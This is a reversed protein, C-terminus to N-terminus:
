PPDNYLLPFSLSILSEHEAEMQLQDEWFLWEKTDRLLAENILSLNYGAYPNAIAIHWLKRQEAQCVLLSRQKFPTGLSCFPHKTWFNAMMQIHDHPWNARGMAKIMWLTAVCFDEWDIDHDNIIGKSEQTSSVPILSTSSDAHCLLTLADNDISTYTVLTDGIGQQHVPNQM